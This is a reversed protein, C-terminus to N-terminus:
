HFSIACPQNFVDFTLYYILLIYQTCNPCYSMRRCCGRQQQNWELPDIISLSHAKAFIFIYTYIYIYIYGRQQRAALTEWKSQKDKQQYDKFFSKKDIWVPLPKWLSEELSGGRPALEGSFFVFCFLVVPAVFRQWTDVTHNEQQPFTSRTRPWVSPNNITGFPMM